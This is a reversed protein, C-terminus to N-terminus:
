GRYSSRYRCELFNEFVVVMYLVMILWKKIEDNVNEHRWIYDLLQQALKAGERDSNDDTM